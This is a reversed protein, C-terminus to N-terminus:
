TWKDVANVLQHMSNSGFLFAPFFCKDVFQMATYICTKIKRCYGSVVLCPFHVWIRAFWGFDLDGVPQHVILSHCMGTAECCEYCCLSCSDKLLSMCAKTERGCRRLQLMMDMCSTCLYFKITRIFTLGAKMFGDM